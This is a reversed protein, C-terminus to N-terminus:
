KNLWVCLVGFLLIFQSFLLAFFGKEGGLALAILASLAGIIFLAQNARLGLIM